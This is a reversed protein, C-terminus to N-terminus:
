EKETNAMQKAYELYDNISDVKNQAMPATEEGTYSASTPNFNGFRSFYDYNSPIHVNVFKNVKMAEPIYM